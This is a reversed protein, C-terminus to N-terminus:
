VHARGIEYSVPPTFPLNNVVMQTEAPAASMPPPTFPFNRVVTPTEFSSASTAPPIFSFDSVVTPADSSSTFSEAVSFLTSGDALCFNTDDGYLQQCQLCKKM